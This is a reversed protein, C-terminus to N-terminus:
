DCEMNDDSDSGGTARLVDGYTKLSTITTRKKSNHNDKLSQKFSGGGFGFGHSRAKAKPTALTGFTTHSGSGGAYSAFAVRPSNTFSSSEGVGFLMPDVNYRKALNQFLEEEKFAYKELTMDVSALKSPNHDKYFQILKERVNGTYKKGRTSGPNNESDSSKNNVETRHLALAKEKDDRRRDENILSRYKRNEYANIGKKFNVRRKEVSKKVSRRRKPSVTGPRFIPAQSNMTTAIHGQRLPERHQKM